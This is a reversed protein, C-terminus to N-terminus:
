IFVGLAETSPPSLAMFKLLLILIEKSEKKTNEQLKIKEKKYEFFLPHSHFRQLQSHCNFTFSM